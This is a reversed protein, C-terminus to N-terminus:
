KAVPRARDIGFAVGLCAFSAGIAIIAGLLKSDTRSTAWAYAGLAEIACCLGLGAPYFGPGGEGDKNAPELKRERLERWMRVQFGVGVLLFLAIFIQEPIGMNTVSDFCGASAM